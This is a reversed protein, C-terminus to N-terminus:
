ERWIYRSGLSYLALRDFTTQLQVRLMHLFTKLWAIVHKTNEIPTSAYKGFQCSIDQRWALLYIGPRNFLVQFNHDKLVTVMNKRSLGPHQVQRGVDM